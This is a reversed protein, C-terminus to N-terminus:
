VIISFHRDRVRWQISIYIYLWVRVRFIMAVRVSDKIRVRSNNEVM